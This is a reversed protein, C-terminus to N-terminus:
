EGVLWIFFLVFPIVKLRQTQGFQSALIAYQFLLRVIPLIRFPPRVIPLIIGINQQELM